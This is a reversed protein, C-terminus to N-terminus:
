NILISGSKSNATYKDDCVSSVELIYEEGPNIDKFQYIYNQKVEICGVPKETIFIWGMDRTHGKQKFYSESMSYTVGGIVTKLAFQKHIEIVVDMDADNTYMSNPTLKLIMVKHVKDYSLTVGRVTTKSQSFMATGILLMVLLKKM